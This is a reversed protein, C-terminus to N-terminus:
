IRGRMKYWLMGFLEHLSDENWQIARAAPVWGDIGDPDSRFCCPAPVVNLGQKRFVLESRRMHFAETVLAIKHIGHERLIVASDRANEYTSSSHDETWIMNEPVGQQELLRKMTEAYPEGGATGRGSALVPTTLGNRYLLAAHECRQFTDWAPIPETRYAGAPLVESALVVIAEIGFDKPMEPGYPGELFRLPVWAAPPWTFLFLLGACLLLLRRWGPFFGLGVLMLLMLLPFFPQIYTM